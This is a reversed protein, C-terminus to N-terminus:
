SQIWDIRFYILGLNENSTSINFSFGWYKPWRIHLASESSFIRFQSLNLAPPSPCSLPHSTQIADDVWRVQNQSFELLYHLVSFCTTSCDISWLSDSVVSCSFLLVIEVSSLTVPVLVVIWPKWWYSFFINM